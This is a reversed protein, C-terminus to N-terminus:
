EKTIAWQRNKHDSYIISYGYQKRFETVAKYVGHHRHKPDPRWDDGAIIGKPKVKDKLIFLEEATHEYQHSSDLYVWDFYGDPFTKLVERDDGIHVFIKQEEIEKQWRKLIKRVADVTSKNGIAWSWHATLFFWPDILHLKVANTHLFLYPSFQGRFVGLEAGVGYKPLLGVIIQGRVVNLKRESYYSRLTRFKEILTRILKM